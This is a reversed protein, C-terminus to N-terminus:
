KRKGVVLLTATVAVVASVVGIVAVSGVSFGSTEPKKELTPSNASINTSPTPIAKVAAAEEQASTAVAFLAAEAADAVATSTSTQQTQRVSARLESVLVDYRADADAAQEPKAFRLVASASGGKKAVSHFCQAALALERASFFDWDEAGFNHVALLSCTIDSFVGHPPLFIVDAIFSRQKMEAMLSHVFRSLVVAMSSDEETPSADSRTVEAAVFVEGVVFCRAFRIALPVGDNLFLCPVDDLARVLYSHERAAVLVDEPSHCQVNLPRADGGCKQSLFSSVIDKKEVCRPLCQVYFPTFFKMEAITDRIMDHGQATMLRPYPVIAAFPTLGVLTDNHFWNNIGAEGVGAGQRAAMWTMFGASSLAEAENVLVERTLARTCQDQETETRYFKELDAKWIDQKAGVRSVLEYLEKAAKLQASDTDHIVYDVAESRQVM